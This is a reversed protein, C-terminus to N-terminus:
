VSEPDETVAWLDIERQCAERFIKRLKTYSAQQWTEQNAIFFATQKLASQQASDGSNPLVWYTYWLTDQYTSNDRLDKAIEYYSQICPIMSVLSVVWDFNEAVNITFETYLTTEWERKAELVTAEPISLDEICTTLLSYAYGAHSQIKGVLTEYDVETSAKISRETDFLMLRACYLFDQVMYWKFGKTVEEDSSSATKMKQCFGNNLLSEWITSEDRILMAVLDQSENAFPRPVSQKFSDQFTREIENQSAGYKPHASYRNLDSLAVKFRGSRLAPDITVLPGM